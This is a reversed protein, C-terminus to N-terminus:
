FAQSPSLESRDRLIVVLLQGVLVLVAVGLNLLFPMLSQLGIAFPLAASAIHLAGWVVRFKQDRIISGSLLGMFLAVAIILLFPVPAPDAISIFADKDANGMAYMVVMNAITFLVMQM